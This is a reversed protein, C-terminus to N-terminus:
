EISITKHIIPTDSPGIVVEKKILSTHHYVDIRLNQVWGEHMDRRQVTIDITNDENPVIAIDFLDVYPHPYVYGKYGCYPISGIHEHIRPNYIHGSRYYALYSYLRNHYVRSYKNFLCDDGDMIYTGFIHRFVVIKDHHGIVIPGYLEQYAKGLAVPGSIAFIGLRKTNLVNDVVMDIVKKMLPHQPICAIFANFLGFQGEPEKCVLLEHDRGIIERLPILNSIKDDLYVGGYLYMVCYRWLDAKYAGPILTDYAKLVRNDFNKAIMERRDYDDYFRYSYEPNLQKFAEITNVIYSPQIRSNGTQYIVKPIKTYMAGTYGITVQNLPIPTDIPITVDSGDNKRYTIHINGDLFLERHIYRFRICEQGDIYPITYLVTDFIRPQVRIKLNRPCIGDVGNRDEIMLYEKDQTYVARNSHFVGYQEKRDREYYGNYATYGFLKNDRTVLGRESSPDRRIIVDMDNYRVMKWESTGFLSGLIEGMVRPGSVDVSGSGYYCYKVHYLIQSICYGIYPHHSMSGMIGNCFLDKPKDACVFMKCDDPIITSLPYHLEMKIDIYIGGYKYLVLLRWLDAKYARPILKNYLDTFQPYNDMVFQKAEETDHMVYEYGPNLSKLREIANKMGTPM